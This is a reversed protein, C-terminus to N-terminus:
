SIIEVETTAGLYVREGDKFCESYIGDIRAFKIVDGKNLPTAAPPVIGNELLRIVSGSPVDYLKM